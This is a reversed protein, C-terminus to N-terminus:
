ENKRERGLACEQLPGLTLRCHKTRGQDKTFYTEFSTAKTSVRSTVLSPVAVKRKGGSPNPRICPHLYDELFDLIEESLKWAKRDQAFRKWDDGYHAVFCTERRHIAGDGRFGSAM